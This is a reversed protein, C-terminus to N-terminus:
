TDFSRTYHFDFLNIKGNFMNTKYNLDNGFRKKYEEIEKQGKPTNLKTRIFKISSEKLEINLSKSEDSKIVERIYQISSIEDESLLESQKFHDSLGLEVFISDFSIYLHNKTFKKM